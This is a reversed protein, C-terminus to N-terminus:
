SPWALQSSLKLGLMWWPTVVSTIPLQPTPKAGCTGPALGLQDASISPTSSMGPTASASPTRKLQCLKGSYMSASSAMGCLRSKRVSTGCSGSRMATIPSRATACRAPWRRRCRRWAPAPARPASAPATPKEVPRVSLWRVAARGRSGPPRLRRPRASRCRGRRGPGPGRRPASPSRSRGAARGSRKSGSNSRTSASARAAAARQRQGPQLAVGAALLPLGDLGPPRGGHGRAQRQVQLRRRAADADDAPQVGAGMNM